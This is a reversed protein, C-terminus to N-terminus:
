VHVSDTAVSAKQESSAVCYSPHCRALCSAARAASRHIIADTIGFAKCYSALMALIIGIVNNDCYHSLVVNGHEYQLEESM